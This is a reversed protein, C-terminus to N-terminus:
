FPGNQFLIGGDSASNGSRGTKQLLRHSSLVEEEGGGQATPQGNVNVQREEEEEEEEEERREEEEGRREEEERRGGRGGKSPTSGNGVRGGVPFFSPTREFTTHPHLLLFVFFSSSSSALYSASFPAPENPENLFASLM